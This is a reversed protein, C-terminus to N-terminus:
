FHLRHKKLPIFVLLQLTQPCMDKIGAERLAHQKSVGSAIRHLVTARMRPSFPKKESSHNEKDAMSLELSRRNKGYFHSHLTRPNDLDGKKSPM